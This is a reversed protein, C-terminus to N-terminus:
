RAEFYEFVKANKLLAANLFGDLYKAKEYVVRYTFTGKKNDQATLVVSRVGDMAAIAKCAADVPALDAVAEVSDGTGLTFELAEFKVIESKLVESVWAQIQGEFAVALSQVAKDEGLCRVGKASFDKEGLLRAEAGLAQVSVHTTGELVFWSGTQDFVSASTEMVVKVDPKLAGDVRGKVARAMLNRVKTNLLAAVGAGKESGTAVVEINLPVTTQRISAANPLIPGKSKLEAVIDAQFAYVKTAVDIGLLNLNAVLTRRGKKDLGLRAELFVQTSKLHGLEEITKPDVAKLTKMQENWRITELIKKFRVDNEDNPAASVCGAQSLAGILSQEVFADDDGRVPLVTVVKGKLSSDASLKQRAQEVAKRIVDKQEPSFQGFASCAALCVSVLGILTKKMKM